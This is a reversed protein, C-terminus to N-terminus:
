VDDRELREGKLRKNGKCREDQRLAEGRNVGQPTNKKKVCGCRGAMSEAGLSAVDIVKTSGERAGIRTRRAEATIRETTESRHKKAITIIMLRARRLEISIAKLELRRWRSQTEECESAM